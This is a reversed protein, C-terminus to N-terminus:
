RESKKREEEERKMRNHERMAEIQRRIISHMQSTARERIPDPKKRDFM